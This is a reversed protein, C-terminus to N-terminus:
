IFNLRVTVDLIFIITTSEPAYSEFDSASVTKPGPVDRIQFRVHIGCTLELSFYIFFYKNFFIKKGHVQVIKTEPLKLTEGATM